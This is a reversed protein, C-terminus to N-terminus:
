EPPRQPTVIRYFRKPNTRPLTDLVEIPETTGQPSLDVVREWLGSDVADRGLITYSKDGVAEFRIVFDDQEVGVDVVHLFSAADKPRTGAIFEQQNTFTDNDPDANDGSISANSLEAATFNQQKWIVYPDTTGTVTVQVDDSATLQSDSVSLRLVYTGPQSFTATTQALNANAFSVSGPGSVTSWSATFVGPPVPLGDDAAVGNLTAAAPMQVTLDAGANASPSQNDFSVQGTLSLDFSTDSSDGSSQHVEVALVNKGARLLAPDVQRPFFATEDGGGVVGSAFTASTVAGEPMNSRFIETGNLYVIAGDDRRLNVDLAFVNAPSTVNFAHRFYTTAYKATSSPGYDVITTVPDGYGLPAAGQKWTTDPYDVGRWAVTPSSGDDLFRWTAGAAVLTQSALPRTLTVTVDDSVAYEGDSVTLRVVFVGVGPFAFSAAAQNANQIQVAGPGSIQTWSYSLARPPNPLGDDTATGTIPITVPFSASERALDPGANVIPLRNGDNNLGPSVSGPSSRWNQPDNGFATTVMREISNGTGSSNTPWPQRDSYRVSDVVVLPVVTSVTGINNTVTEIGEPRLLEILEGNDQLNGTFPGYVPISVPLNAHQRFTSPEVGSVVVLGNPPIEINPPFSFDVGALRWTNTPFAPDYLKVATTTINKLEVFEDGTAKPHYAIENIVVPGVRPGSNVGGLTVSIQAPYLIEGVSNTYRGFSVGNEAAPFNLGQSYGTLTGDPSSSYLYVEDGLASLSFGTAAGPQNFDGEDFVLYAGADIGTNDPIRFKKPTNQDDTLYWGSLDVRAATPNYLEISDVAPLDTHTLVENVIIPAINVPPDDRGPSGGVASSARWSAAASYNANIDNVRPVISFGAGDASIPWPAQDDYSFQQIPAGAAHIVALAEGGNSLSNTFVGDIRVTPYKTAFQAPNKVLVFFAGASLRTGNPFAYDIGNTFHIGSLDLETSGVNKFEIFEFEDGDVAGVAPPNYMIETILLERFTRIINFTAENLASWTSASLVRAKVISNQNLAIASSYLRAKSSVAGGPLRPDTGDLTYYIQGAPATMTLSFGPNVSGGMQNFTPAVVNPYLSDARLQGLVVSTRTPLFNNLVDNVANVWDDRTIAPATKADGWRASEAVVARDIQVKRRLLRSRNQEPTLLGSNFFYKHVRDAVKLRFEANATLQKFVWQPSSKSVSTDGAPFPGTRDIGIDWPLLTHEGDHAFFMFAMRSDLNRNRLGYWNNPSQNGLFDSIPADKNGTYFILLMYDILNDLDIYVPYAPNPTGDPNNGLLRQYAADTSLGAKALNYLNNWATMNGDTANITYPGAEVKITDYDDEVGGFYTEGYNAEPRECTNYLGWYQGNIYLHYYNGREAQQGMELQTDRSFQDRMFIGNRDGQFSWSYNQFTRLDIKDFESTGQDGFLPYNLKGDGYESRFFFRFAHKPNGTSRSFGGRIRIGANVQFGDTGDPNILELSCPREWAVGDQGPNAYIGTTSNFLDDLKMVISFSPLSKLDNTITTRYTQDNVIDPDMGYDVTNQGWTSPWGPPPAGTASQRIVDNLFIYTQTDVNSPLYGTRYAIARVTTTGAIRIPATYITGSSETPPVGNTTYRIMVGPTATIISLDFATDYFGRKHSFKTDAVVDVLGGGNAAGPTPTNFYVLNGSADYGYSVNMRQDPFNPDFATIVTGDRHVLALFEGGEDLSFNTHLRTATNTNRGSAFIVLYGRAAITTTPFEWKTLNDRDDTLTWEDLNVPQDGSNYLEIWDSFEGFDDTLGSGNNAVFENIRVTSAAFGSLTLTCLVVLSLWRNLKM